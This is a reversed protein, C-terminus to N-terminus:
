QTNFDYEYFLILKNDSNALLYEYNKSFTINDLNNFDIPRLNINYEKGVAINDNKTAILYYRPDNYSSISNIKIDDSLKKNM